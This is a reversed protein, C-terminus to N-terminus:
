LNSVIAMIETFLTEFEEAAEVSASGLLEWVTAAQGFTDAIAQRQHIITNLRPIELKELEALAEDKLRTGKVARSLFLYAAPRGEQQAQIRQVLHFVDLASRLDIGSPQCPVLALDTLELISQTAETLGAPGDIVVHDYQKALLPLDTLL